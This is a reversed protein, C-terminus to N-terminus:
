VVSYTYLNHKFRTDTHTKQMFINPCRFSGRKAHPPPPPPPWVRGRPPDKDYKGGGGGFLHDSAQEWTPEQSITLVSNIYIDCSKEANNLNLKTGNFQQAM